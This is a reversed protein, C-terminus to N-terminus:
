RLSTQRSGVQTPASRIWKCWVVREFSWDKFCNRKRETCSFYLKVFVSSMSNSQRVALTHREEICLHAKRKKSRSIKELSKVAMTRWWYCFFNQKKKTKQHISCFLDFCNEGTRLNEFNTPPLIYHTAALPSIVYVYAPAYRPLRIMVFHWLSQTPPPLWWGTQM